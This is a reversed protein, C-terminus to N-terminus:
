CAFHIVCIDEVNQSNQLVQILQYFLCMTKRKVNKFFDRFGYRFVLVQQM